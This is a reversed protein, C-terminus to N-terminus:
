RWGAFGPKVGHAVGRRGLLRVGLIRQKQGSPAIQGVVLRARLRPPNRLQVVDSRLRQRLQMRQRRPAASKVTFTVRLM